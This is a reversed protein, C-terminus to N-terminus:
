LYGRHDWVPEVPHLERGTIRSVRVHVVHRRHRGAWPSPAQDHDCPEVEVAAHGHALVSWGVRRVPDLADAQFTV